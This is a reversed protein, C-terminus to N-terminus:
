FHKSFTEFIDQFHTLLFLNVRRYTRFLDQLCRQLVDQLRRWLRRWFTNFVDQLHRSSAKTLRRSFTKALCRSSTKFVDQLRRSFTKFVGQLHKQLVDQFHRSSTHGLHIYEDQDLRRSSTKQLPHRFVGEDPCINAPTYWWVLNLWFMSVASIIILSIKSDFKFNISGKKNLNCDFHNM